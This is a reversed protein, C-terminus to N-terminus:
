GCRRPRAALSFVSETISLDAYHAKRSTIKRAWFRKSSRRRRPNPFASSACSPKATTTRAPSSGNGRPRSGPLSRRPRPIPCLEDTRARGRARFAAGRIQFAPHHNGFNEVGWLNRNMCVARLYFSAIGLTKSGVESNWCYFNGSVCIRRDMRCGVRRSRTPTTSRDHQM